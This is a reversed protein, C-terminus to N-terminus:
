LGFYLPFVQQYTGENDLFILYIIIIIVVKGMSFTDVLANHIQTFINAWVESLVLWYIITFTTRDFQVVCM